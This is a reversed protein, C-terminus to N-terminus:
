RRRHPDFIDRLADGIANLSIVTGSIAIASFVWTWWFLKLFAMSNAAMILNGWSPTPPLVGLGLFSIGAEALIAGGIGVTMSVLILGAVNPMIHVTIIRGNKAGISRAALIYDMARISLVRSRFMRADFPWGLFGLAVLLNLPSPGLLAVLILLFLMTPFSMMIDVLRQVLLDVAGGFYGSVSGILLGMSTRILVAALSILLSVRGGYLTRALIDRGLQDTGWLHKANPPQLIAVTDSVNPGYRSLIPALASILVMLVFFVLGAMAQRHQIFARVNRSQFFGKKPSRFGNNLSETKAMVAM